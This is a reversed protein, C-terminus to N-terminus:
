NAKTVERPKRRCAGGQPNGRAGWGVGDEFTNSSGGAPHVRDSGGCVCM